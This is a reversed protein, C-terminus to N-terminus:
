YYRVNNNRKTKLFFEFNMNHSLPNPSSLFIGMAGQACPLARMLEQLYPTRIDIYRLARQCRELQDLLTHLTDRLGPVETLSVVRPDKALNLM